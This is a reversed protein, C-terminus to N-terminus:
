TFGQLHIRVKSTSGELLSFSHKETILTLSGVRLLDTTIHETCIIIHIYPFLSVCVLYLM